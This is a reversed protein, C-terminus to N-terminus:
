ADDPKRSQIILIITLFDSNVSNIEKKAPSQGLTMSFISFIEEMMM